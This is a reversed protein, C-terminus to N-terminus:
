GTSVPLQEYQLIAKFTAKGVDLGSVRTSDETYYNSM